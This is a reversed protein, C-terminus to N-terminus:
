HNVLFVLLSNLFLKNSCNKLDVRFSTEREMEEEGERRKKNFCRLTLNTIERTRRKLQQREWEGTFLHHKLTFTHALTKDDQRRSFVNNLETEAEAIQLKRRSLLYINAGHDIFSLINNFELYNWDVVM